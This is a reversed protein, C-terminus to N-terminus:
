FFLENLISIFSFYFIVSYYCKILVTTQLNLGTWEVSHLFEDTDFIGMQQKIVESGQCPVHAFWHKNCSSDSSPDFSSLRTIAPHKSM